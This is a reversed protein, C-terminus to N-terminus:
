GELINGIEQSTGRQTLQTEDFELAYFVTLDDLLRLYGMQKENLKKQSALSESIKSLHM